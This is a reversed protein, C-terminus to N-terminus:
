LSPFFLLFILSSHTRDSKYHNNKKKSFFPSSSINKIQISLPSVSIAVLMCMKTFLLMYVLSNMQCVLEIHMKSVIGIPKPLSCVICAHFHIFIAFTLNEDFSELSSFFRCCWLWLSVCALEAAMTATCTVPLCNSATKVPFGFCVWVFQELFIRFQGRASSALGVFVCSDKKQRRQRYKLRKTRGACM